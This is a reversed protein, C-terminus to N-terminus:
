LRQLIRRCPTANNLKDSIKMGRGFMACLLPCEAAKILEGGLRRWMEPGLSAKFLFRQPFATFL